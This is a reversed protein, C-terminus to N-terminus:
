GTHFSDTAEPLSCELLAELIRRLRDHIIETVESNARWAKRTTNQPAPRRVPIAGHYQPSLVEQYRSLPVRKNKKGPTRPPESSRKRVRARCAATRSSPKPSGGSATSPDAISETQGTSMKDKLDTARHAVSANGDLASRTSFTHSLVDRREVPYRVIAHDCQGASASNTPM